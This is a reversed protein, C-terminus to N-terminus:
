KCASPEHIVVIHNNRTDLLAVAREGCMGDQGQFVIEAFADPKAELDARLSRSVDSLVAGVTGSDDSSAGGELQEELRATSHALLDLYASGGKNVEFSWSTSYTQMVDWIGDALLAQVTPNRLSVCRSAQFAYARPRPGETWSTEQAVDQFIAVRADDRGQLLEGCERPDFDDGGILDGDTEAQWKPAYAALAAIESGDIGKAASLAKISAFPRLTQILQATRLELRAGHVLQRQTAENAIRVIRDAQQGDLEVGDVLLERDMRPANAQAADLLGRILFAGGRPLNALTEIDAIPRAAIIANATAPDFGADTLADSSWVNAVDLVEAVQAADLALGDVVAAPIVGEADLHLLLMRADAAEFGQLAALEAVTQLHDDDKTGWDGDLGRVKDTVARAAGLSIGIGRHLRSKTTGPANLFTLVAHAEPSGEPLLSRTDVALPTGEIQPPTPNDGVCAATLLLSVLIYTLAIRNM